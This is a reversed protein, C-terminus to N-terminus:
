FAHHGTFGGVITRAIIQLDLAVSWHEIYYLDHEVRKRIQEVTDTEGRWGNVQAWGTIGPKVRHRADYYRVADQYLVAGAKAAVAHPRPGVISMDGRVVNLFQPLEDLSTSRLFAGLRTIRPDGRRTLQRGDPDGQDAYMSRFKLVEILRNNFGYRKQRFFIPGPSDLKILLAILLMVPMIGALIMAGLMRDEIEKAIWRWGDLPRDIANLLTHGGIHSVQVQGLRLGFADPCLRVNVPLLSLRNLADVLLRDEGLPLAVIVMDIRLARADRVLDDVTGRIPHGMCHQPLHGAEDDYVGIIQLNTHGTAFDRLLRQAIPGAGVIAVIEGLRGARTLQSMRHWVVVRCLIMLLFAASFWTATWPGDAATVPDFARGLLFLTAFTALWGLLLRGAASDLRGHSIFRYAGSMHLFKNGLLTGLLVLLGALRWDPAPAHWHIAALGASLMAAVDLGVLVNTITAESVTRSSTPM